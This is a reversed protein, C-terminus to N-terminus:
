FMLITGIVKNRSPSGFWATGLPFIVPLLRPADWVAACELRLLFLVLSGALFLALVGLGGRLCPSPGAFAQSGVAISPHVRYSAFICCFFCTLVSFPAILRPIPHSVTLDLFIPCLLPDPLWALSVANKSLRKFYYIRARHLVMYRKKWSTDSIGRKYLWSALTADTLERLKPLGQRFEKSMPFFSSCIRGFCAVLTPLCSRRTLRSIDFTDSYCGGCVSLSLCALHALKPPLPNSSDFSNWESNSGPRRGGLVLGSELEAERALKRRQYPYAVRLSTTGRGYNEGRDPDPSWFWRRM